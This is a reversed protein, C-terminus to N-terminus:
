VNKQHYIDNVLPNDKLTNIFYPNVYYSSTEIVPKSMSYVKEITDRSTTPMVSHDLTKHPHPVYSFLIPENLRVNDRDIYPGNLDGKGNPTRNYTSIERREDISMNKAAEHSSPAEIEGHLAGTYDELMTTEKTTTRMTDMLDTYNGMNTNVVRGGPTQVVTTQKITPKAVDSYDKVYSASKDNAKTHGIHQTEETQQRITTRASDSLDRVYTGSKDSSKTHGVHQTEETQQRITTRAKDTLDRVYTAEINNANAHGVHQTEETQQRITDRAKDSVDRVYHHSYNNKGVIGTYNNIVTSQKITPKAIDTHQVTGSKIEGTANSILNHSTSQRQTIKAEDSNYVQSKKVEGVLNSVINHSTGQRLTIKAEDSNYVQSKKVEGVLNTVINHSTGPRQTGRAQDDNYIQGQKVESTANIVLSHSTGPRQTRRAEDENHIQGQKVEGVLNTVINHSTGPRQTRRAQDDNYIQGQKVESTANIVLNHSTEPRQTRRAEDENYLQGQKVESTANIVLNHSTSQRQTLKATDNYQVNTPKFKSSPGLISNTDMTQRKTVPLVMDNSFVYTKQETSPGLVNDNYIMLERATTLPVNKYDIVYGSQSTNVPAEYEINTTLRQNEYATFSKANTMVPKNYVATVAHTNDNMYNERKSPEFRTKGKDPGDGISTNVAHGPNYTEKENRMTIVNTYTGTQKPADFQSKSPMLDDFKTERYDPLKFKTLNPDPGRFEGKKVAENRRGEYTTKQNIDSRLEDVNKPNIRYVAYNGTQNKDDVGPRVRVNTEFPTNGYNNKNSPLYRDAVSNTISPMGHTFTLDAMPEFLHQKEKKPTYHEFSGTFTELKRQTRDANVDFDRRSTNPTMNNHVFEEKSVVDYHMDNHAFQSYGNAFDLNRQLSSNVGSITTFSENIGVPVSINDFRLDDFQNLFEPKTHNQRAQIQEIINMKGSINSDYVADLKKSAKNQALPGLLISSM